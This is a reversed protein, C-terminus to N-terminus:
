GARDRDASSGRGVGPEAMRGVARLAGVRLLEDADGSLDAADRWHQSGVPCVRAM